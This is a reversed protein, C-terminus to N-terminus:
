DGTSGNGSSRLNRKIGNNTKTLNTKTKKLVLRVSIIIAPVWVFLALGVIVLIVILERSMNVGFTLEKRTLKTM